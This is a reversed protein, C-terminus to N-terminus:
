SAKRREKEGGFETYECAGAHGAERLCVGDRWGSALTARWLASGVFAASSAAEHEDRIADLKTALCHIIPAAARTM